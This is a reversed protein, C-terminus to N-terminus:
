KLEMAPGFFEYRIQDNGLGIRKLAATVTQLFPVPGCVYCVADPKIWQKLLEENLHGTFSMEIADGPENYGIHIRGNELGGVLERAREKFAHVEKSRASHIFTVDRSPQRESITELMSMMPTVGVGGSIFAVPGQEEMNLIFEGAPPTVELISGKQLEEHLYNSVKGLPNSDAEKKVSIRFYRRGPAASLSYQRNMAYKEGPISVRVTIYQGPLFEPVKGGDEPKIYFSTIVESEKERRDVVFRRFGEWGAKQERAESYMDKEIGIFAQAIVGYADEWAKLIDDTAAEGLVEKIALLLYKGVIPYHEPQVNLSRHKHAVQRVAPIIEELRDIHRAAAYVMNALATQQRGKSQNAHNFINLLEPHQEFMRNYFCTTIERGKVELVPATSKVIDMTQQSLMNM